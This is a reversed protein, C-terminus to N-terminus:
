GRPSPSGPSQPPLKLNRPNWEFGILNLKAIRESTMKTKDKDDRGQLLRKYYHRQRKVWSALPANNAFDSPVNCHGNTHKFSCLDQYREEWSAEYTDWVFGVGRLAAEREESMCSSEGSIKLKYQTRQRKVWHGLRPNREFDLPVLCHGYQNRFEVLEDFREQWQDTKQMTSSSQPLIDAGKTSSNTGDSKLPTLLADICGDDSSGRRSSSFSGDTRRKKKSPSQQHLQQQQHHHQQQPMQMVTYHLSQDSPPYAREMMSLFQASPGAVRAEQATSSATAVNMSPLNSLRSPNAYGFSQVQVNQSSPALRKSPLFSNQLSRHLQFLEAENPVLTTATSPTPALSPAGALSNLLQQLSGANNMAFAPSESLSIGQVVNLTNRPGIPTPEFMVNMTNSDNSRSSTAPHFGAANGDSTLELSGWSQYDSDLMAAATSSTPASAAAISSPNVTPPQYQERAQQQQQQQQQHQHHYQSSNLSSTPLSSDRRNTSSM